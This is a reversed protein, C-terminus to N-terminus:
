VDGGAECHHVTQSPPSVQPPYFLALERSCVWLSFGTTEACRIAMQYCKWGAVRRRRTRRGEGREAGGRGNNGLLWPSSCDSCPCFSEPLLNASSKNAPSSLRSGLCSFHLRLSSGVHLSPPPLWCSFSFQHSTPAPLMYSRQPPSRESQTFLATLSCLYPARVERAKSCSFIVSNTRM